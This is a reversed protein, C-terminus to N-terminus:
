ADNEIRNRERFEADFEAFPRYHGQEMERVGAEIAALDANQEELATLAARVIEEESRYHGTSLLVNVREQLDASLIFPM